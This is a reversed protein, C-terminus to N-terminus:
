AQQVTYLYVEHKGQSPTPHFPSFWRYSFPHGFVSKISLWRSKKEWGGHEKKLSEIGQFSFAVTKNCITCHNGLRCVLSPKGAIVIIDIVHHKHAMEKYIRLCNMYILIHITVMHILSLVYKVMEKQFYLSRGVDNLLLLQESHIHPCFKNQCSCSLAEIHFM